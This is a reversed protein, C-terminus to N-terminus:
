FRNGRLLLFRSCHAPSNSERTLRMKSNLSPWTYKQYFHFQLAAVTAFSVAKFIVSEHFTEFVRSDLFASGEPFTWPWVLSHREEGGKTVDLNRSSQM